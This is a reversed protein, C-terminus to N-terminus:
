VETIGSPLEYVIRVDSFVRRRGGSDRWEQRRSGEFLGLGEFLGEVCGCVRSGHSSSGYKIGVDMNWKEKSCLMTYILIPMTASAPIVGREEIDGMIENYTKDVSGWVRHCFQEWCDLGIELLFIKSHISIGLTNNSNDLWLQDITRLNECPFNTLLDDWNELNEKVMVQYFIWTTEEDAKRWQKHKLYDALAECLGDEVLDDTCKRLESKFAQDAKSNYQVALMQSFGERFREPNEKNAFKLRFIEQWKEENKNQENGWLHHLKESARQYLSYVKAAEPLQINTIIHPLIRSVRYVRNEEKVEPSVEILGLNLGRQLQHQYNPLEGCVAELAAMPVPIEYVLCYSLIKQLPEDILEHLEEWIIKEKWLKPSLELKTLRTEVDTNGLEDNLFELLRPNGDALILARERLNDPITGSIFNELRSLKKALEAKKFPELGQKYFFELLDSNFDYRCTIIIRNKTGTSQIAQVLAELIQAVEAKLIYQGDRPELNWEFDDLILLFPKECMEALQSFLYTLRSKLPIKSNELYPILELQKPNILKDKLKNILYSEDIQRWWLIKEHESLRDWLRSAISSKGWGGMGHILVGVKDFDTKLTRLCNQLQRRRGVFNERTAVRLRKEKDRFEVENSPNPLQKRKPTILPTVLAGPFTNAVYLRLKHWDPVKQEILKQYTSAIAEALTGSQSLEWYLQGAAITANTDRVREGWSIVATAGMSLLEEAMSPVADDQSYGTRCGSLFILAPLRFMMAKAIADTSSDVRNGYEDETLFCPKKDQHTTHGTLHFIDFYGTEYERVVYSLETLCGSEEVRLSVPTRKTASLIKGEEAEYDLEPEVGLPSTAMFLANLPRNQPNDVTVIPQGNSIWRVPIIPLTKEVLFCNGDHLLEWPLHALGKDTAIAIILGQQRPQNLANALLRDSKDLWNYLAQGTISYDIPLRTYYDTEAKESLQKIEALSLKHEKYNVPNDWFYRLSVYDNGQEKLTIHLIKLTM